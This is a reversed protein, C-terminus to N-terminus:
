CRMELPHLEGVHPRLVGSLSVLDSSLPKRCQLNAAAMMPEFGESATTTWVPGAVQSEPRRFWVVRGWGGGQSFCRIEIVTGWLPIRLPPDLCSVM